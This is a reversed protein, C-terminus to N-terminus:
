VRNDFGFDDAEHLDEAGAKLAPPLDKEASPRRDTLRRGHHLREKTTQM